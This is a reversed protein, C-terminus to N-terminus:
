VIFDLRISVKQKLLGNNGWYKKQTIKNEWMLIIYYIESIILLLDLPLSSFACHAWSIVLLYHILIANYIKCSFCHIFNLLIFPYFLYDLVLFVKRLIAHGSPLIACFLSFYLLHQDIKYCYYHSFSSYFNILDMPRYFIIWGNQLDILFIWVQM